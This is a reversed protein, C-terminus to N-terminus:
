TLMDRLRDLDSHEGVIINFEEITVLSDGWSVGISDIGPRIVLDQLATGQARVEPSTLGVLSLRQAIAAADFGRKECLEFIVDPWANM